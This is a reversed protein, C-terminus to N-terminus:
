VEVVRRACRSALNQLYRSKEVTEIWEVPFTARIGVIGGVVCAISDSDGLTNAAHRIALLPDPELLIIGVAAALADDATWGRYRDTIVDLARMKVRERAADYTESTEARFEEM